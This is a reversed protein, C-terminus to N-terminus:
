SKLKLYTVNWKVAFKLISCINWYNYKSFIKKSSLENLSHYIYAKDTAIVNYGRSQADVCIDVDECYLRYREDFLYGREQIFERKILMCAGLCWDIRGANDLLREHGINRLGLRKLFVEKISPFTKWSNQVQGNPYIIKPCVLVNNPDEDASNILEEIFDVDFFTDPNLVLFYKTDLNFHRILDNNNKSFGELKDKVLLKKGFISNEVIKRSGDTSAADCFYANFYELKTLSDILRQLHNLHNHFVILISIDQKM